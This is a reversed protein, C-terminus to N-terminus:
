VIKRNKGNECPLFFIPSASANYHDRNTRSRFGTMRGNARFVRDDLHTYWYTGNGAYRVTNISYPVYWHPFFVCHHCPFSSFAMLFWILKLGQSPTIWLSGLFWRESGIRFSAEKSLFMNQVLYFLLMSHLLAFRFSTIPVSSLRFRCFIKAEEFLQQHKEEASPAGFCVLVCPVTAHFGVIACCVRWWLRRDTGTGIGFM